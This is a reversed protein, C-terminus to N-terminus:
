RKCISSQSISSAESSPSHVLICFCGLVISVVLELMDISAKRLQSIFIWNTIDDSAVVLNSTTSVISAPLSAAAIGVASAVIGFPEAMETKLLFRVNM